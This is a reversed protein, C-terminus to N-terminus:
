KVPPSSPSIGAVGGPTAGVDPKQLKQVITPFSVTSPPNERKYVAYAALLAAVIVGIKAVTTTPVEVFLGVVSLVAGQLQSVAKGVDDVTHQKTMFVGIVAFVAGALVVCATQLGPNVTIFLAAVALALIIFSVIAKQCEALSYGFIM